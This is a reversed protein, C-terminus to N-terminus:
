GTQMFFSQLRPLSVKMKDQHYNGLLFGVAFNRKTEGSLSHITPRVKNNNNISSSQPLLPSFILIITALPFFHAIVPPLQCQEEQFL